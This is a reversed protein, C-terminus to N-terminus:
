RNGEIKLTHAKMRNYQTVDIALNDKDQTVLFIYPVRPMREVADFNSEIYGDTINVIVDCRIKDEVIKTLAPSMFTGGSGRRSFTKSKPDFDEVIKPETDVQIITVGAGAKEAIAKIETLGYIIEEDSMSGSVDLM